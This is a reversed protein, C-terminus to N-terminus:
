ESLEDDTDVPRSVTYRGGFWRGLDALRCRSSCFPFTAVDTPVATRCSPCRGDRSKPAPTFMALADSLRRRANPDRRRDDVTVRRNGDVDHELTVDIREAPLARAIRSAWEIAVVCHDRRLLEDWGITELEDETRVRWADIHVLDALLLDAHDADGVRRAQRHEVSVVFTPSTIADPDIGLGAALGRVFRTKGAGLEGELAIVASHSPTALVGAAMCEGIRRTDRESTSIREWPLPTESETSSQSM